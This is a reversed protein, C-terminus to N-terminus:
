GRARERAPPSPNPPCSWPARAARRTEETENGRSAEPGSERLRGRVVTPWIDASSSAASSCSRRCSARTTEECRSFWISSSSAEACVASAVCWRRRSSARSAAAAPVAVSASPPSSEAFARRSAGSTMARRMAASWSRRSARTRIRSTWRVRSSSRLNSRRRRAVASAATRRLCTRARVRQARPLRATPLARIAHLTPHRARARDCAVNAVVGVSEDGVAARSPPGPAGRPSEASTGVQAGMRRVASYLSGHARDARRSPEAPPRAGRPAGAYPRPRYADTPPCADRRAPGRRPAATPAATSAAARRPQSRPWCQAARPGRPPARPSGASAGARVEAWGRACPRRRAGRPGRPRWRRRSCPVTPQSASSGCDGRQGTRTRAPARRTWTRTRRWRPPQSDRQTGLRRHRRQRDEPPRM